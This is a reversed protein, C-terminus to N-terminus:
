VLLAQVNVEVHLLHEYVEPGYRAEVEVRNVAPRGPRGVTGHAILLAVSLAVRQKRTRALVRKEVVSFLRPNDEPENKPELEVPSELEMIAPDGLPGGQGGVTEPAADLTALGPKRPHAQVYAM